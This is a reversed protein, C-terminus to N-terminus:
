NLSDPDIGLLKLQEALYLARQEAAQARQEAAQARQETEQRLQRQQQALEEPTLFREGQENYWYLWERTIGQYTGKETGIGLDIEPLWVPNGQQLQYKGKVLNYVELRPKRRRFPNYIVYYLVGMEAYTDKKSNYEGGRNKSVVEITLIPIVNNEEWLVYSFRLGEDIVRDVGLSLFGDPGIAPEEPHHYIGMDVGFFWDWREAWITALIAELMGPILHQLQNDVPKEDSDPLAEAGPLCDLLNYKLM